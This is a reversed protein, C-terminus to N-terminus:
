QAVVLWSQFGFEDAQTVLALGIQNQGSAAGPKGGSVGGGFRSQSYGVALCGADRFRYAGSGHTDGGPSHEGPAYGNDPAPGQNYGQRSARFRTHFAHIGKQVYYGMGKFEQPPLRLIASNLENRM